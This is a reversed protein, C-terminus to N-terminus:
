MWSGDLMGLLQDLGACSTTLTGSEQETGRHRLDFVDRWDSLSKEPWLALLLAASVPARMLRLEVAVVNTITM